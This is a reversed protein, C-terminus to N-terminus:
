IKSQKRITIQLYPQFIVSLINKKKWGYGEKRTSTCFCFWKLLLHFCHKHRNRSVHLYRKAHVFMYLTTDYSLLHKNVYIGVEYSLLHKNVYIGVKDSFNMVFEKVGGGVSAGSVVLIPYIQV